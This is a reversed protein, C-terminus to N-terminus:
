ALRAYVARRFALWEARPSWSSGPRTKPELHLWQQQLHQKATHGTLHLLSKPAPSPKFKVLIYVQLDLAVHLTGQCEVDGQALVWEHNAYHLVGHRPRWSDYWAWAAALLALVLGLTYGWQTNPTTVWLVAFIVLLIVTLVAVASRYGYSAGVAVSTAPPSRM